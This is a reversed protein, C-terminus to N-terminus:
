GHLDNRRPCDPGVEGVITRYRLGLLDKSPHWPRFCPCDPLDLDQFERNQLLGPNDRESGLRKQDQQCLRSNLQLSFLM